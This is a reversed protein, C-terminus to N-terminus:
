VSRIYWKLCLSYHYEYKLCLSYHYEYKLSLSYHYEYKLCLSYHYEYKLCLLYHYEYKLCLSYHYAYKLCLSYHYEYVHVIYLPQSRMLRNLGAVKEWDLVQIDHDKKTNLSHLHSTVTRETSMPLITIM